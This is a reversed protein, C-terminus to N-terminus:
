LGWAEFPQPFQALDLLSVRDCESAAQREEATNYGWNALILRVGDLDSQAQISRLTKLRDEVFWFRSGPLYTQKLQQLTVAKPQKVEKGFVQDSNLSLGARGLLQHIFRGEKTSIILVRTPSHVLLHQLHEIVGLYFRHYSLWDELDASIWRDRLDDVAQGLQSPTLGQASLDEGVLQAAIAGWNTLMDAEARGLLCARIVLPMEWGTEVVPRLRGFSAELGEPPSAPASWIQGYVRWATQFYEPLGDCIVGDFDLALVDPRAPSSEQAALPAVSSM